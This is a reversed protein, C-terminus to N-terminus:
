CGGSEMALGWNSPLSRRGSFPFVHSGFAARAGCLDRCGPENGSSFVLQGAQPVIRFSCGHQRATYGSGSKVARLRGAACFHDGGQVSLFDFEIANGFDEVLIMDNGGRACYVGTLGGTSAHAPTEGRLAAIRHRMRAELCGADGGCANRQGIWTIQEERIQQKAGAGVGARAARYADAMERDLASLLDSACIAHETATAAKACDFSPSAAEGSGMALTQVVFAVVLLSKRNM